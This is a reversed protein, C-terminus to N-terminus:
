NKDNKKWGSIPAKKGDNNRDSIWSKGTLKERYYKRRQDVTEFSLDQKVLDQHHRIDLSSQKRRKSVTLYARGRDDMSIGVSNTLLPENAWETVEFKEARLQLPAFYAFAITLITYRIM